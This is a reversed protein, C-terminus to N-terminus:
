TRGIIWFMPTPSRILEVGKPLEGKWDAAALAFNGAKNGTTRTGPVAFVDTWMDLM